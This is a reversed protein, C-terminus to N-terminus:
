FRERSGFSTSLQSKYMGSDLRLTFLEDKDLLYRLGIGMGWIIDTKNFDRMDHQVQGAETFVVFGLREWIGTEWPFSRIETIASLLYSDTYQSSQLIRLERGLSPMGQFPVEQTAAIYKGQWAWTTMKGLPFFVAGSFTYNEYTYDSRLASSYTQMEYLLQAGRTPFYRNDLTNYQFTLGPGLSWGGRATLEDEVLLWEDTIENKYKYWSGKYTFGFDYNDWRRLMEFSYAFHQQWSSAKSTIDIENGIGYFDSDGAEFSLPLNIAYKGSEMQWENELELEWSGKLSGKFQLKLLSPPMERSSDLPRFTYVLMAGGSVSQEESYDAVPMLHLNGINQGHMLMFCFMFLMIMYKKM